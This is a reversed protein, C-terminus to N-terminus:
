EDERDLEVVEISQQILIQRAQNYALDPASGDFPIEDLRNMTRLIVNEVLKDNAVLYWALRAFEDLHGLFLLSWEVKDRSAVVPVDLSSAM